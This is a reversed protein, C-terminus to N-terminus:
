LEFLMSRIYIDENKLKFTNDDAYRQLRTPDQRRQLEQLRYSITQM